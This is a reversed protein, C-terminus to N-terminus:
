EGDVWILFPNHSLLFSNELAAPYAAKTSIFFQDNVIFLYLDQLIVEGLATFNNGAPNIAVAGLVLALHGLCNFPGSLDGEQGIGAVGLALM